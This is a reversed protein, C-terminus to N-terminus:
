HEAGIIRVFLPPLNFFYRCAWGWDSSAPYVAFTQCYISSLTSVSGNYVYHLIEVIFLFSMDYVCIFGLVVKLHTNISMMGAM